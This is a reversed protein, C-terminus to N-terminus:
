CHTQKNKNVTRHCAHIIICIESLPLLNKFQRIVDFQSLKIQTTVSIPFIERYAPSRIEYLKLYLRGLFNVIQLHHHPFKRPYRLGNQLYIISRIMRRLLKRLAWPLLFLSMSIYDNNKKKYITKENPITTTGILLRCIMIITSLITYM